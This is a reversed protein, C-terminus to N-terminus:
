AKNLLSGSVKWTTTATKVSVTKQNVKLVTGTIKEGSRTTFFVKEGARFSRSARAQREKSKYNITAIISRFDEDSFEGSLIAANIEGATKM